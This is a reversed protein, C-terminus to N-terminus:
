RIRFQNDIQCTPYLRSSLGMAYSKSQERSVYKEMPLLFEFINFVGGLQFGPFAVKPVYSRVQEGGTEPSTALM